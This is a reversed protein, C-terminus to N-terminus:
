LGHPTMQKEKRLQSKQNDVWTKIPGPSSQSFDAEAEGDSLVSDSDESEEGTHRNEHVSGIDANGRSSDSGGGEVGM